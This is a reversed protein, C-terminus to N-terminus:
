QSLLRRHYNIQGLHYNFHSLLHILMWETSNAREFVQVPFEKSLDEEKIDALTRSVVEVTSDIDTLLKARSLGLTSFEADRDRVYGSESLIAGIFHNLNGILHLTINGGSNPINPGTKWLTEDSPYQEIESRLRKLDRVYIESLTRNLMATM